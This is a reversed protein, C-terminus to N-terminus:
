GSVRNAFEVIDDKTRPGKYNYALEGKLRLCFIFDIFFRYYFFLFCCVVNVIEIKEFKCKKLSIYLFLHIFLFCGKRLYVKRVSDQTM